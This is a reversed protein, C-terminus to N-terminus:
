PRVTRRAQSLLTGFTGIPNDHKPARPVGHVLMLQRCPGDREQERVEFTRRAEPLLVRVRHAVREGAVVLDQAVCDRGLVADHERLHTIAHGRRKRARRTREMRAEIGLEAQEGFRPAVRRELGPHAEVRAVPRQAGVALVHIRRQVPARAEHGDRVAALDHERIRELGEDAVRERGVRGEDVEPFMPQAVQRVRHAHVLERVRRQRAVEWAQVRESAVRVQGHLERGEDPPFALELLERGLDAVSADDGERADATDALRAEGELDCGLAKGV